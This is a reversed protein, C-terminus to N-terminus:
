IAIAGLPAARVRDLSPEAVGREVQKVAEVLFANAPADLGIEAAKDVIFGNIQEIETRRGKQIDQGM